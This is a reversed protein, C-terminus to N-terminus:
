WPQADRESDASLTGISDSDARSTAEVIQRAIEQPTLGIQTLVETRKGHDLFQQPIGFGRVPVDVSADRLQQSLNAEVGGARGNDEVVAVLRHGRALTV